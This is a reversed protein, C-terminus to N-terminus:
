DGEEEIENKVGVEIEGKEEKEVEERGKIELLNQVKIM